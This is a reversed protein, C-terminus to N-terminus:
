GLSGVRRHACEPGSRNALEHLIYRRHLSSLIERASPKSTTEPFQQWRPIRTLEYVPNLSFKRAVNVIAAADIEKSSTAHRNQYGGLGCRPRGPELDRDEYVTRRRTRLFRRGM